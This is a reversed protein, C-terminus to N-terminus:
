SNMTLRWSEQISADAKVVPRASERWEEEGCISASPIRQRLVLSSGAPRERM